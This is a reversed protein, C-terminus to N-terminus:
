RLTGAVPPRMQQGAETTSAAEDESEEVHSDTEAAEATLTEEATDSSVSIAAESEGTEMALAADATQEGKTQVPSEVQEDSEETDGDM